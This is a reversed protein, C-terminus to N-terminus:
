LTGDKALMLDALVIATLAEVCPLARIAICPDHRGGIKIVTEKMESLSVTKQEIGISATPKFAVRFVIPMGSTIGGIVGGHHNTETM